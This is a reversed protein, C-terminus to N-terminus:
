GRVGGVYIKRITERERERTGVMKTYHRICEIIFKSRSKYFISLYFMISINWKYLYKIQKINNM